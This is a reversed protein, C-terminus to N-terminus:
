VEIIVPLIMPRRKTEQLYFKSLASKVTTEIDKTSGSNIKGDLAEALVRRTSGVLAEAEEDEVFGYTVVEPSPDIRGTIRNRSLTIIVFGDRSLRRRDRLVRSNSNWRGAGDLYVPGSQVTQSVQGREETLELVDGNEMVFTNDSPIGLSEALQAHLVLHRYEGHVPVFFRPTTLRIMLKLEERSAHGHVHVQKIGGYLVHAGLRFLNDITRSILTQNGPIPSASMIVTDGEIIQMRRHEQNALRSLASSPEGQTGTLIIAVRRNTLGATEELSVLAGEPIHLYGLKTALQVTEVMSRGEICVKRGHAVAADIVQQVRSVLSAFTAVIVRGEAEGMILNLADSVVRESPTYGPLEAYTSDSLLLHVGEAGLRALRALDAPQGDVPTHDFKFDGSHVVTGVPTHIILGMSDPISHCVRFMEVQFAGIFFPEGPSASMLKTGKLCGHEKLRAAIMGEALRSAYIPADLQKVVYPLAGIHDEHGHTIVIGRVRSANEVLYSIDPIVLDIGPLDEGPFKVGADIVLIDEGYELALMNKGIEGVGGLPIVKLPPRAM